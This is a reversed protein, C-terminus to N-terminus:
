LIVHNQIFPNSSGSVWYHDNDQFENNKSGGANEDRFNLFPQEADLDFIQGWFWNPEEILLM